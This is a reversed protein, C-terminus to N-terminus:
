LEILLAILGRWHNFFPKWLHSDNKQHDSARDVFAADISTSRNSM